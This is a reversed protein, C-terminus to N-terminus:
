QNITGCNDAALTDMLATAKTAQYFYHPGPTLYWWRPRLIRHTLTEDRVPLMGSVLGAPIWHIM